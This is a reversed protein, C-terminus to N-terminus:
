QGAGQWDIESVLWRDGRKVITLRLEGLTKPKATTETVPITANFLDGEASVAVPTGAQAAVPVSDPDAYALDGALDPTVRPTLAARWAEATKGYTNLWAATFATAAERVDPQNTPDVLIPDGGDEDHDPATGTPKPPPANNVGDDSSPPPPTSPAATAGSPATSSSPGDNTRALTPSSTDGGAFRSVLLVAGAVAILVATTVKRRTIKM